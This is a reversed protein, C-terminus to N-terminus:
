FLRGQPDEAVVKRPRPPTRQGLPRLRLVDDAAPRLLPALRAADDNAPDLWAEFDRPELIVPMRDHIASVTGNADTTLIAVTDIESGDPGQNTEWIGGLAMPAGDARSALFPERVAQRGTGQRRWEMFADAPVLCRRRRIANRFAPKEGASEARANFLLPFDGADKVWEPLFGWRMLVFHRTGGQRLVVGIPETPAISERPPFEAPEVYGFLARVQRPTSTLAFRGCM